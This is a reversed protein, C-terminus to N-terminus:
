AGVDAPIPGPRRPPEGEENPLAEVNEKYAGAARTRPAASGDEKEWPPADVGPEKKRVEAFRWQFVARDKGGVSVAWRGCPSARVCMVHSSHGACRRHPAEDVVCPFNFVNVGGFDDATVLHRKGGEGNAVDCANVDTGDAGDRWIGMADFGLVGTFTAWRQDRQNERRPRGTRPDFHLIEYASCTSRLTRSDASWDVHRVAAGHGACGRHMRKYGAAVDFVDVRRDASAAALMSGDPSFVVATVVGDFTKLWRVRVLSTADLVHIGGDVCGVALRAGDPSYGVSRAANGLACARLLRRSSACWVNLTEGESATAFIPGDKQSQSGANKADGPDTSSSSAPHFAVSYLDNAHGNVIVRPTDDVEWVDAGATGAVFAGPRNPDCDLGRFAPPTAGRGAATRGEGSPTRVATARIVSSERLDGNTVDWAIVHGDAGASYLLVEEGGRDGEGGKGGGRDANVRVRLCRVGHRTPPGDPRAVPPGPAHARVVRLCRAERWVAVDGDPTGTVTAGGPLFCASTVAHKKTTPGFKGSAEVYRFRRSSAGASSAASSAAARGGGGGEERPAEKRWWKIHNVGYTVFASADPGHWDFVLGYVKPPVDTHGKLEYTAASREAGAGAAWREFVFITHNNDMGVCALTAGTADFGVAAVGRVAPLRLTKLTVSPDAPRWVCVFPLRGVQGTACLDRTKNIAMCSVDDDHGRFFTQANRDVDHVVGVGAAYYCIVNRRSTYFLNNALADHAYGHVHELILEADPLKASRVAAEGTWGSPTFVGSRCPPYVIKGQFAFSNKDRADFAGRRVNASMNALRSPAVLLAEAFVAVPLLGERTQGYKNFAAVCQEPTVRVGLSAWARAFTAADVLGEEESPASASAANAESRAARFASLLVDREGRHLRRRRKAADRMAAELAPLSPCTVNSAYPASGPDGPATTGGDNHMGSSSTMAAGTAANARALSPKARLPKPRDFAPSPARRAPARPVPEGALTTTPRGVPPKAVKVVARPPPRRNFDGYPEGYKKSEWFPPRYPADRAMAPVHPHKM